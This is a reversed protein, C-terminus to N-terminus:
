EYLLHLRRQQLFARLQDQWGAVIADPTSGAQLQKRVTDTGMLQDFFAERCGSRRWLIEPGHVSQLAYLLHVGAVAPRYVRSDTLRLRVGPRDDDRFPEVRVGPLQMEKLMECTAEARLWHASLVQFSLSQGRRCHLESFAESWVTAPYYVASPWDVLAPSPPIGGPWAGQLSSSRAYGQLPVVQLDVDLSFVRRMWRATEGPTMGYVLPAPVAGVFSEFPTDLVPGDVTDALPAPRDTVIVDRGRGAAEEMLYRLTSVYTYCRVGIDQLDVVVTDVNEFMEATPRKTDGHLSFIPIDWAPHRDHRVTEGAAARGTFGHEPGYLCVLEVEPERWLREATHEGDRNVSAAHALLGVRRGRLRHDREALLVDIGTTYQRNIKGDERQSTATRM